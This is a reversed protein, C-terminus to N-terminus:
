KNVEKQLFIDAKKTTIIAKFLSRTRIKTRDAILSHFTSTYTFPFDQVMMKVALITLLKLGSLCMWLILFSKKKDQQPPPPPGVSVSNVALM